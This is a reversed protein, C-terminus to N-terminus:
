LEYDCSRLFHITETITWNLTKLWALFSFFHKINLARMEILLLDKDEKSLARYEEVMPDNCKMKDSM